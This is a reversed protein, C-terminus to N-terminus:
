TVKSQLGTGSGPTDDNCAFSTLTGLTAGTYVDIVTDFDSSFTDVEYTDSTPPTVKYWVSHSFSPQCAPAPEGAGAETTAGTTDQTDSFAALGSPSIASAFNDNAPAAALATRPGLGGSLGLLLVLALIGAGIWVSKDQVHAM